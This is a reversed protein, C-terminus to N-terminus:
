LLFQTLELTGRLKIPLLQPPRVVLSGAPDFGDQVQIAFGLEWRAQLSSKCDLQQVATQSKM